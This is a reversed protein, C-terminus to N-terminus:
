WSISAGKQIHQKTDSQASAHTEEIFSAHQSMLNREM